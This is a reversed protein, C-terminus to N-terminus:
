VEFLTVAVAYGHSVNYKMTLPYSISRPATTRTNSFALGAFFSGMIMEHRYETNNLDDM